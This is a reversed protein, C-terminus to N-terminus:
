QATDVLQDYDDYSFKNAIVRKLVETYKKLLKSEDDDDGSDSDDDDDDETAGGNEDMEDADEDATDIDDDNDDSDSDDSGSPMEVDNGRKALLETDLEDDHDM